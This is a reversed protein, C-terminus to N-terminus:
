LQVIGFPISINGLLDVGTSWVKSDSLISEWSETAIKIAGLFRRPARFLRIYYFFDWFPTFGHLGGRLSLLVRSIHFRALLARAGGSPPLGARKVFLIWVIKQYCFEFISWYTVKLHLMKCKALYDLHADRQFDGWQCNKVFKPARSLELAKLAQFFLRQECFIDM